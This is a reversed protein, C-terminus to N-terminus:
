YSPAGSVCRFLSTKKTLVSGATSPPGSRVASCKAPIAPAAPRVASIRRAARATRPMSWTPGGDGPTLTVAQGRAISFYSM